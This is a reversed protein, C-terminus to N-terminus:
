SAEKGEQGCNPCYGAGYDAGAKLEELPRGTLLHVQEKAIGGAFYGPQGVTGLTCAPNECQYTKAM